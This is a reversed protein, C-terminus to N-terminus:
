GTSGTRFGDQVFVFGLAFDEGGRRPGRRGEEMEMAVNMVTMTVM